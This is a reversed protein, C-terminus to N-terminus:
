TRGAPPDAVSQPEEAPVRVHARLRTKVAGDLQRWQLARNRGAQKAALLAQDAFYILHESSTVDADDGYCAMGISCTIKLRTSGSIFTHSELTKRIREASQAASAIDARPLIVAFEEGGTRAVVDSDRVSGTLIVSIEKLVFDGMPHGYRDNVMKFHDLDLMLLGLSQKYRRAIRFEDAIFKQFYRVNHLRTLPDTVVQTHLLANDALLKDILEQERHLADQLAHRSGDLADQLNKIRLLAKMRAWLEDSGISESLIEDAGSDLCRCRDEESAETESLVIIPMFGVGAERQLRGPLDIQAAEAPSMHILALDFPMQGAARFAERPSGVDTVHWGQLASQSCLMAAQAPDADMLLIRPQRIIPEDM